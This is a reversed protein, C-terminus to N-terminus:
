PKYNNDRDIVDGQSLDGRVVEGKENKVFTVSIGAEQSIFVFESQALMHHIKQDWIQKALLKGGEEFFQVYEQSSRIKYYGVLPKLQNKTIAYTQSVPKYDKARKWLDRELALVETITGDSGKTFKLPFPGAVGEFEFNSKRSFYIEKGDWMQKLKLGKETPTIQIYSNTGPQFQMSYYGEFAKLPEQSTQSHATFSAFCIVVSVFTIRHLNMQNQNLKIGDNICNCDLEM